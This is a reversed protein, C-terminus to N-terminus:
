SCIIVLSEMEYLTLFRINLFIHTNLSIKTQKCIKSIWSPEDINKKRIKAEFEQNFHSLLSFIWMISKNQERKFPPFLAFLPFIFPASNRKKQKRKANNGVTTEQQKIRLSSAKGPKRNCNYIANNDEKQEEISTYTVFLSFSFGFINTSEFVVFCVQWCRNAADQHPGLYCWIWFLLFCFSAEEWWIVASLSTHTSAHTCTCTHRLAMWRPLRRQLKQRKRDRQLVVIPSFLITNTHQPLDLAKPHSYYVLVMARTDNQCMTYVATPKSKITVPNALGSQGGRGPIPVQKNQLKPTLSELTRHNGHPNYPTTPKSIPKRASLCAIQWIKVINWTKCFHTLVTSRFRLWPTLMDVHCFSRFNKNLRKECPHRIDSVTVTLRLDVPFRRDFSDQSFM